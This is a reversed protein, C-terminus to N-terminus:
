FSVFSKYLGVYLAFDCVKFNDVFCSILSMKWHPYSNWQSRRKRKNHRWSLRELPVCVTFDIQRLNKECNSEEFVFIYKCQGLSLTLQLFVRNPNFGVPPEESSKCYDAALLPIGSGLAHSIDFHLNNVLIQIFIEAYLKQLPVQVKCNNAPLYM